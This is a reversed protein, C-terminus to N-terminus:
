FRLDINRTRYENLDCFCCSYLGMAAKTGRTGFSQEPYHAEQTDNIKGDYKRKPFPEILSYHGMPLMLEM